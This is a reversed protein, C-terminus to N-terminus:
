EYLAETDTVADGGLSLLGALTNLTSVPALRLSQVASSAPTERRQHLFRAFDLVEVQKSVPLDNLIYLIEPAIATNATMQIATRTAM